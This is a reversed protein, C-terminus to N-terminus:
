ADTNESEIPIPCRGHGTEVTGSPPDGAIITFPLLDRKGPRTVCWHSWVYAVLLTQPPDPCFELTANTGDSQIVYRYFAGVLILGHTHGYRDKWFGHLNGRRANYTGPYQEDYFVPKDTPRHRYWMPKVVHRDNKVVIVLTYWGPYICSGRPKLETDRPEGLGGRVTEIKNTTTRIDDATKEVAKATLFQQAKEM